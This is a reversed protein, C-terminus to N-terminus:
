DVIQEDRTFGKKWLPPTQKEIGIVRRKEWKVILSMPPMSDMDYQWANGGFFDPGGLLSLVEEAKMGKQLKDINTHRPVSLAKPVFPHRKDYDKYWVDFLIPSLVRPTEDLRRLSLQVVQRLTLTHCDYPDVQGDVGAISLGGSSGCYTSEELHRLLPIAETIHLPGALYAATLIPWVLECHGGKEWMKRTKVGKELQALVDKRERTAIAKSIGKTEAALNGKEIDVLIRKGWWPRVVFLRQGAVDLFYWLSYGMWMPGATTDHVFTEREQQSMAESLLGIKCTDHGNPDVAILEYWGTLIVTWGADSVYVDLPSQEKPSFHVRGSGGLRQPKEMPQRRTWLVKKTKTDTCTYVFKSQFARYGPGPKNDPSRAQVEYQGNESRATIDDYIRDTAGAKGSCVLVVALLFPRTVANM